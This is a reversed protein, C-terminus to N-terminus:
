TPIHCSPAGGTSVLPRRSPSAPRTPPDRQEADCRGALAEALVAPIRTPDALRVAKIGHRAAASIVTQRDDILVASGADGQCMDLLRDFYGVDPKVAKLAWSSGIVDFLDFHGFRLNKLSDWHAAENNALVLTLNSRARRLEALQEFVPAHPRVSRLYLRDTWRRDLRGTGPWGAARLCEELVDHAHRADAEYEHQRAAVVTRLAAADAGYRAALRDLFATEENVNNFLVGGADVLLLAPAPMM